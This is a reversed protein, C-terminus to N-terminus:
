SNHLKIVVAFMLRESLTTITFWRDDFGFPRSEALESLKSLELKKLSEGESFNFTIVLKDDYLYVANVFTNVIVEIQEDANYIENKVKYLFYSIHEKTIKPKKIEAKAISLQISRKREEADLLRQKTTSTIIGQEIADMINDIVKQTERLTKNLATVESNDTREKEYLEYAGQSMKEINEPTLVQNITVDTILQEIWDKKVTKKTCGRRRKKEICSYYYHTVGSSGTGSDGVMNAGCKGCFLKGTLYFDVHGKARAPSRKNKELRQQVKEFTADDILRPMVDYLVIDFYEYEGIYKRNKLISHLSSYSFVCRKASRYGAGNLAACIDKITEGAAYMKFALKVAPATKEDIVYNKEEDITYGLPVTGGMYKGQEAKQRMGRVVNQALNASYFEAMGELLSELLIGEPGETIVEMASMVRVNNAKLIAKYVASDNRNRAFRDLKYVIVYDFGGNKSDAIMRQFEPRRDTKGTLAEDHYIDVIDIDNCEAWKTCVDVQGTISQENQRESSYRAYIVGRKRM